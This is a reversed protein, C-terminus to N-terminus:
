CCNRTIWSATKWCDCPTTLFRLPRKFVKEFPQIPQGESVLRERLMAQKRELEAIRTEHRAVVSSSSTEVIRDLLSAIQKEGEELRTRISRRMAAGRERYQGWAKATLTKFLDLRGSKPEARRLIAEFEREVLLHDAAQRLRRVARFEAVPFHESLDARTPHPGERRGQPTAPHARLDPPSWRSM